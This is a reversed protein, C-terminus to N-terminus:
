SWPTSYKNTLWYMIVFVGVSILATHFLSKM